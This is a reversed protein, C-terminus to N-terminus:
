NEYNKKEEQEREKGSKGENVMMNSEPRTTKVKKWQVEMWESARENKMRNQKDNILKIFYIKEKQLLIEEEPVKKQQKAWFREVNKEEEQKRKEAGSNDHQQKKSRSNLHSSVSCDCRRRRM